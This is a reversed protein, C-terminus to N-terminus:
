AAHYEEATGVAEFELDLRRALPEFYGNTVLTVRHGRRRLAHGLGAFPHVDGASGITVLLIHMPTAGHRRQCASGSPADPRDTPCADQRGASLCALHRGWARRSAM